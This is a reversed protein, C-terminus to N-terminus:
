GTCVGAYSLSCPFAQHINPTNRIHMMEETSYGVLMKGGFIRCESKPCRDRWRLTNLLRWFQVVSAHDLVEAFLGRRHAFPSTRNLYVPVGASPRSQIRKPYEDTLADDCDIVAPLCCPCTWRIIASHGAIRVHLARYQRYYDLAWIEQELWANIGSM